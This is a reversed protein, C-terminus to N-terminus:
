DTSNKRSQLPGPPQARGHLARWPSEEETTSADGSLNLNRTLFAAMNIRSTSGKRINTYKYYYQDYGRRFAGAIGGPTFDRMLIWSELEGLKVEM